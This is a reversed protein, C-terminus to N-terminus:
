VAGGRSHPAARVAACRVLRSGHMRGVTDVTIALNAFVSALCLVTLFTWSSLSVALVGVGVSLSVM